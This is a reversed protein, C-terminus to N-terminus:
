VEVGLIWGEEAEADAVLAPDATKSPGFIAGLKGAEDLKAFHEATVRVQAAPEPAVQGSM